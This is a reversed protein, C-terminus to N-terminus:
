KAAAKPAAKKQKKVWDKTWYAFEAEFAKKVEASTVDQELQIGSGRISNGSDDNKGVDLVAKELKGDLSLRFWYGKGDHGSGKLVYIVICLPSKKELPGSATDNAYVISSLRYQWSKPNRPTGEEIMRAPMANALGLRSTVATDDFEDEKGMKQLYEILLSAARQTKNVSDTRLTGKNGSSKKEEEAKVAVSVLVMSGALILATYYRRAGVNFDRM